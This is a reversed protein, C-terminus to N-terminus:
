KARRAPKLKADSRMAKATVSAFRIFDSPKDHEAVMVEAGAAVCLPWLEAWPVVGAGVDAWGDQDQSEGAPAIDKVHVLPTRGAYRKIWILPNAKARRIWAIDNEWLVEGVLIHEIPFSGDPLAVFEFDHNHWALRLKHKGFWSAAKSLRAGLAKYGATDTPREQPQLYPAVIIENGLARALSLVKDPHKEIMEVSYHGSFCALGHKDMLRRTQAVDDYFPGFTEINSYGLKALTTFQAEVPPFMRASYLQFSLPHKLTM